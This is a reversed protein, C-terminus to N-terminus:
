TRRSMGVRCLLVMVNIKPNSKTKFNLLIIVVPLYFSFINCFLKLFVDGVPNEPFFLCAHNDGLIRNEIVSVIHSVCM